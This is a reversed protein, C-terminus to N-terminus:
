SIQFSKDLGLLILDDHTAHPTIRDSDSDNM